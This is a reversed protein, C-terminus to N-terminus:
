AVWRRCRPAVFLRTHNLVFRHHYGLPPPSDERTTSPEHHVLEAEIGAWLDNLLQAGLEEVGSLVVTGSELLADQLEDSLGNWAEPPLLGSQLSARAQDALIPPLLEPVTQIGAYEAEYDRVVWESAGKRVQEKLLALKVQNREDTEVFFPM